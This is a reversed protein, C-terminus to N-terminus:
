KDAPGRACDTPAQQEPPRRRGDAFAIRAVTDLADRDKEPRRAARGDTSEEARHHVAENGSSLRQEPPVGNAQRGHHRWSLFRDVDSQSQRDYPGAGTVSGAEIRNLM